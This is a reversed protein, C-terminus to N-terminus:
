CQIKYTSCGSMWGKCNFPFLTFAKIFLLYIVTRYIRTHKNFVKESSGHWTNLIFFFIIILTAAAEFTLEPYVAERAQRFMGACCAWRVWPGVCRVGCRRVVGGTAVISSESCATECVQRFVGPSRSLPSRAALFVPVYYLITYPVELGSVAHYEIAPPHWCLVGAEM